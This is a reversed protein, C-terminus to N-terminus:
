QKFIKLKKLVFMLPMGLVYCSITQGIGVYLICSWIPVKEIFISLYSGVVVANIIVPPLPVLYINKRMKWSLYAALLTALSGFVMDIVGQGINAILCGIFLGWIAVPTLGAIVTLAESIRVQVFGYSIPYFILTLVVYIAAIVAAQVIKEFKM